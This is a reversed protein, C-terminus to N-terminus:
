AENLCSFGRGKGRRRNSQDGKDYNISCDLLKIERHGKVGSIATAMAMTEAIKQDRTAKIEEFLAL